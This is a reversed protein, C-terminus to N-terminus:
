GVKVHYVMASFEFEKSENLDVYLQRTPNFHILYSPRSLLDQLTCFSAVEAIISEDLQTRFAFSRQQNEAKLSPKLLETKWEQLPKIVATYHLVYEQLWETLGLYMKLERLNRPFTLKSIALLKEESTALRLFSVKQGLLQVSPYVLYAKTPQISIGSKIFMSFVSWLHVLHEDLTKSFIVVDDVYAKIYDHYLWLLRDIQCQVYAPFNKYGM